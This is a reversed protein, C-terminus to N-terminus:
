EHPGIFKEMWILNYWRGFKYGCKHLEAVKQYGMRAHFHESDRTLYPDDDEVPDAILAYLNLIGMQGLKRELEQYLARGCGKRRVDRRVYISVECSHVYAARTGLPGAYAYGLIQGDEEAMLYPYRELTHAVRQTFEELTPVDYEYSIATNLVYPAYIDLLTAADDPRASRIQMAAKRPQLLQNGSM